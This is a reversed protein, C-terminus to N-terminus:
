TTKVEVLDFRHDDQVVINKELADLEKVELPVFSEGNWVQAPGFHAKYEMASSGPVFYGLYYHKLGLSKALAIEKLVSFTGLGFSAFDPDWFFYVSSLADATLDLVGVGVLKGQKTRWRLERTTVCTEILFREYIEAAESPGLDEGHKVSQYRRYLEVKEETLSVADFESNFVPDCRKLVRMQSRTPQFQDPDVRLPICKRCNDCLPRYVLTGSRRMGSLLTRTFEQDSLNRPAAIATKTPRRDAFYPCASEQVIMTGLFPMDTPPLFATFHNAMPM